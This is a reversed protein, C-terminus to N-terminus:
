NSKLRFFEMSNTVINSSVYNTGITAPPNTLTMWNPPNLNTTYQLSFSGAAVPWTIALSSGNFAIGLATSIAHQMGTTNLTFDLSDAFSAGGVSLVTGARTNLTFDASDAQALGGVAAATGFRTNVTFNASDASAAGGIALVTGFRTNVTFDVSDASAAGGVALPTGFRTNLTFNGSDARAFGGIAASTGFATNLSFDASMATAAGGINTQVFVFNTTANLWVNGYADYPWVPHAPNPLSYGSIYPKGLMYDAIAQNAVPGLPGYFHLGDTSFLNAPDLLPQSAIQDRPIIGALGDSSLNNTYFFQNVAVGAADFNTNFAYPSTANTWIHNITVYYVKAGVAQLAEFTNSLYGQVSAAAIGDGYIDNVGFAYYVDVEKVKSPYPLSSLSTLPYDAFQWGRTGDEANNRWCNEAPRGNQVFQPFNNTGAADPAMLSDGVYLREVTDPELWRLARYVSNIQNSSLVGKFVLVASIEGTWPGFDASLNAYDQGVSLVNMPDSNTVPSNHIFAPYYYGIQAQVTDEWFQSNGHGDNSMAMVKRQNLKTGGEVYSYGNIWFPQVLNSFPTGPSGSYPFNVGNREWVEYTGASGGQWLWDASLTNSNVLGLVFEQNNPGSNSSRFVLVLTNSTVSAALPLQLSSTGNFLAGWASFSLNSTTEKIGFFSLQNTPNFRPHLLLGDALLGFSGSTKLESVFGTVDAQVAPDTINNSACFAAADPDSQAAVRVACM